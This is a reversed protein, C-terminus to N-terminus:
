IKDGHLRHAIQHRFAYSTLPLKVSVFHYAFFTPLQLIAYGDKKIVLVGCRFLMGRIISPRSFCPFRLVFHRFAGSSVVFSRTPRGISVSLLTHTHTSSFERMIM